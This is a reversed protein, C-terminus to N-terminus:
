FREGRSLSSLLSSIEKTPLIYSDPVTRMATRPAEDIEAEHPDLIVALGGARQVALLGRAGDNGRGALVIAITGKPNYEVCSELLLTGSPRHGNVPAGADLHIAGAKVEMHVDEPALLATGPDLRENDIAVRVRLPCIRSLWQAFVETPAIPPKCVVLVPANLTPSLERLVGTLAKTGGIASVIAILKDGPPPPDPRPTVTHDDPRKPGVVVKALIHLHRVLQSSEERSPPLSTPKAWVDVAGARLAECTVPGTQGDALSTLVLIPTPCRAMIMKIAEIGNLSPMMVDMTIVDPQVKAAKEVAEIGNEATGVIVIDPDRSLAMELARLFLPSDDVLLVRVRESV